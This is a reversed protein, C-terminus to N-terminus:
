PTVCLRSKRDCPLSLPPTPILWRSLQIPLLIVWCALYIDKVPQIHGMPWLKPVGASFFWQYLKKYFTVCAKFLDNQFSRLPIM